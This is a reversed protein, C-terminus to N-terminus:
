WLLRGYRPRGDPELKEWSVQEQGNVVAMAADYRVSTGPRDMEDGSACELTCLLTCKLRSRLARMCTHRCLLLVLTVRRNRHLVRM